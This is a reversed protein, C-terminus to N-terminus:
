PCNLESTNPVISQMPQLRAAHEPLTLFGSFTFSMAFENVINGPGGNVLHFRACQAQPFVLLLGGKALSLYPTTRDTLLDDDIGFYGYLFPWNLVAQVAPPAGPTPGPLPNSVWSQMETLVLSYGNPVKYSLVRNPVGVNLTFTNYVVSTHWAQFDRPPAEALQALHKLQTVDM